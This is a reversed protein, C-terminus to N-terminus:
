ADPKVPTATTALRFMGWVSVIAWVGELLLFGWQQMQAAVVALIASGVGNLALYPFGQPTLLRFQAAAFAGLLLLAGFIQPIQDM